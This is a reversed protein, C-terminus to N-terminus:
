KKPIRIVDGVVLSDPNAIQNIALIDKTTVNYQKAINNLLDGKQITYEIYGLDAAPTAASAEATPTAAPADTPAAAPTSTTGSATTPPSTATASGTTPTSTRAPTPKLPTATSPTGPTQASSVGSPSTSMGAVVWGAGVAIACFAVCIAVITRRHM